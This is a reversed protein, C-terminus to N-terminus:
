LVFGLNQNERLKVVEPISFSDYAKKVVSEFESKSLFGEIYPFLLNSALEQYSATKFQNIESESFNPFTEPMFLGGDKATGSTLVDIFDLRQNNGRTSLYKM